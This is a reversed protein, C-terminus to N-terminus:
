SVNIAEVPATEELSATFTGVGSDVEPGKSFGLAEMEAATPIVYPGSGDPGGYMQLYQLAEPWQFLDLDYEKATIAQIQRKHLLERDM